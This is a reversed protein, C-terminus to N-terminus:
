AMASMAAVSTTVTCGARRMDSVFTKASEEFGPVASCCDELLLLSAPDHAWNALVDRMTFNVCHSLAQGCIFLRKQPQQQQQSRRHGGKDARNVSTSDGTTTSVSSGSRNLKALFARNLHTSPDSEIPVDAAIASYMETLNNLGKQLYEVCVSSSSSTKAAQRHHQHQHGRHHSHSHHDCWEHLAAALSPVVQHGRSGVLCHEPWIILVFRGKQELGRTYELAHKQVM